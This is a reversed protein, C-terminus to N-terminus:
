KATIWNAIQAVVSPEIGNFGHYSRAECPDGVSQGGSAPILQKKSAATFKAMLGPIESYPCKSCGDQTHHVVLVPIKLRNLAMAPVPAEKVDNLITSTLVLGDPGDPGTLSTAVYAASQTGHSTGVLWVPVKAQTRVWAIVAKLDAVHQPTERFGMLYPATQRDSPADVIVVMLGADVFM